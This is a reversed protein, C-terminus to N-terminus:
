LQYSVSATANPGYTTVAIFLVYDKWIAVTVYGSGADKRATVGISDGSGASFSYDWPVSVGNTHATEGDALIYDVDATSTTGSVDYTIHLGGFLSCADLTLVLLVLFFFALKKM